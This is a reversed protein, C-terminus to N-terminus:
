SQQHPHGQVSNSVKLLPCGRTFQQQRESSSQVEREARFREDESTVTKIAALGSHRANRM